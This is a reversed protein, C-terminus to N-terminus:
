AAVESTRVVNPPRRPTRRDSSDPSRTRDEAFRSQRKKQSDVNKTATFVKCGIPGHKIWALWERSVIRLISTLNKRGKREREERYLHGQRVAEAVANQVTRVCVGAKAAIRGVALDCVGYHKVKRAIITLAARECETYAARVAPPMSSSGGLMRARQRSKERDPSRRPRRRAWGLTLKSKSRGAPRLRQVAPLSKLAALRREAEEASVYDDDQTKGESDTRHLKHISHYKSPGHVSGVDAAKANKLGPPAGGRSREAFV